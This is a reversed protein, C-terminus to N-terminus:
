QQDSVAYIYAIKETLRVFDKLRRDLLNSEEQDPEHWRLPTGIRIYHKAQASDLWLPAGDYTCGYLDCDQKLKRDFENRHMFENARMDLLILQKEGRKEIIRNVFETTCLSSVFDALNDTLCTNIFLFGEKKAYEGPSDFNSSQKHNSDSNSCSNLSQRAQDYRLKFDRASQTFNALDVNKESVLPTQTFQEVGISGIVIVKLKKLACKCHNDIFEKINNQWQDFLYNVVHKQNNKKIDEM